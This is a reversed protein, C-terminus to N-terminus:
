RRGDKKRGGEKRLRGSERESVKECDKVRARKSDGREVREGRKDIEEITERM